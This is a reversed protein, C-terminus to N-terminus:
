VLLKIVCITLGAVTIVLGSAIALPYWFIELTPKCGIDEENGRGQCM